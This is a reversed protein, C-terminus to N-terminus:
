HWADSDDEEDSSAKNDDEVKQEVETLLQRPWYGSRTAVGLVKMDIELEGFDEEVNKKILTFSTNSEGKIEVSMPSKPVHLNCANSGVKLVVLKNETSNNAITIKRLLYGEKTREFIEENPNEETDEEDSSQLRMFSSHHGYATMQRPLNPSIFKDATKCTKINKGTM